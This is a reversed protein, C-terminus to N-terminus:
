FGRMSIARSIDADSMFEAPLDDKTIFTFVGRDNYHLPYQLQPLQPHDARIALGDVFRSIETTRSDIIESFMYGAVYDKLDPDSAVEMRGANYAENANTRVVTEIRHATLVKDDIIIDGAEVYPAYLAQMQSIIDPLASGKKIADVLLMQVKSTLPNTIGSVVFDTKMILYQLAAEPQVAIGPKLAAHHKPLERKADKQGAAHSAEFMSRVAKKLDVQGKLKLKKIFAVDIKKSSLQKLLADRQTLMIAKINQSTDDELQVTKKEIETFNCRKECKHLNRYAANFQSLSAAPAPQEQEPFDLIKRYHNADKLTPTIVGKQVADGFAKALEFRQEDTLPRFKFVPLKSVNSYNWDVLRRILQEQMVTEELERRLKQVVWLFVDFHVKAQAYAGTEGGSALRDPILISRSISRNHFALAKEYDVASRRQPELLSLDFEGERFTISTKNQFNTLIDRLKSVVNPNTTKHKGIVTPAGFRELYINWFKIINDKAWYPRYAGRLDSTGYHNGFQKGYTYIIFKSVDLKTEEITYVLGDPKLNAFDDTEFQYHHPRKSKLAKVGIRGDARPEWVIETISFGYTLASLTKYLFDTISGTMEAFCDGVFSAIEVSVKDEDAPIIDWAATLTAHKKLELSSKVEDDLMMENYIEFGKRRLLLDPNYTRFGLGRYLLSDTVAIENFDPQAKTKKFINFLM